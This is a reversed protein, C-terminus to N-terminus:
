IDEENNYWTEIIENKEIDNAISMYYIASIFDKCEESMNQEMLPKNFDVYYKKKSNAALETISSLLDSPINEIMEEDFYALYTYLEKALDSNLKQKM